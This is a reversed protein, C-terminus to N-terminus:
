SSHALGGEYGNRFRAPTRTTGRSQARVAPEGRWATEEPIGLYHAQKARMRAEEKRTAHDYGLLHLMGHCFLFLIEGRMQARKGSCQREVTELSIVIDGLPYVDCADPADQSFSLVDTSRDIGRYRRNLEHITADDCLLVSIEAGPRAREGTCVREALQVLARKRYLSTRASVNRVDVGVLAPGNNTRWPRAELM